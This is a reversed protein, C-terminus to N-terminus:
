ANARPFQSIAEARLPGAANGHEFPLGFRELDGVKSESERGYSMKM